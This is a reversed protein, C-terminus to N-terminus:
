LNWRARWHGEKSQQGAGEQSAGGRKLQWILVSLLEIPGSLWEIEQFSSQRERSQEQHTSKMVGSEPPFRMEWVELDKPPLSDCM